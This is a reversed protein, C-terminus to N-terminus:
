HAGPSLVEAELKINAQKKGNGFGTKFNLIMIRINDSQTWTTKRLNHQLLQLYGNKLMLGDWNHLESFIEILLVSWDYSHKVDTITNCLFAGVQSWVCM